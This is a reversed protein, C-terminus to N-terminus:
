EKSIDSGYYGSSWEDGRFSVTLNLINGVALTAADAVPLNIDIEQGALNPNYEPKGEVPVSSNVMVHATVYQPDKANPTLSLIEVTMQSANDVVVSGSIGPAPYGSITQPAPYGTGSIEATANELVPNEMTSNDTSGQKCGTLLSIGIVLLLLITLQKKM